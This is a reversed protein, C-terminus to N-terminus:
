HLLKTFAKLVKVLLRTRYAPRFCSKEIYGGACRIKRLFHICPDNIFLFIM